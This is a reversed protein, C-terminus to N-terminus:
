KQHSSNAGKIAVYYIPTFKCCYLALFFFFLILIVCLFQPASM